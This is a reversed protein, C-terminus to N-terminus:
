MLSGLETTRTAGGPACSTTGNCRKRNLAERCEGWIWMTTPKEWRPGYACMDFHVQAILGRDSALTVM